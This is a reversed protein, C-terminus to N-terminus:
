NTADHVADKLDEVAHEGSAQAQKAKGALQDAKDGTINGTTTINGALSTLQGTYTPLYNAVNANGYSSGGSIGTLFAGNGLIYDGSINATTTINGTSNISSDSGNALVQQGDVTLSNGTVGISLNGIYLTNGALWLNAWRNTSNGLSYTVNAAPIINGAWGSEGLAIADANTYTGANGGTSISIAAEMEAWQSNGGSTFYIYQIGTNAQIWVDGQQAGVPATNSVTTNGASIGTLFSGNGLFYNATVTNGATIDGNALVVDTPNFLNGVSFGNPSFLSNLAM